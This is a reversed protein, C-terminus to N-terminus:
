AQAGVQKLLKALLDRVSARIHIFEDIGATKFQEVVAKDAPLGALVVIMGPKTAKVAKAFTPVLAPYTEDTSCLVAVSAGSAAAAQAAAEPTEFSQKAISEFGGVAFFGAAFDARAKHQLVPGMKALFVKPRSGTKAAFAGSSQRLEEIGAAARKCSLPQISDTAAATGLTLRSLQGVTAGKDAAAILSAMDSAAPPASSPRRAKLAAARAAKATADVPKKAFMKEKLNPFLNTGVLASRRKAVADDKDTAAAAVLKQPEGTRLVAVFGGKKEIDQFLGWAKRALEDSLKEIYWSGGSPDATRAVGFEEALLTHINRAIRRSFDDTAGTVEDFPGVHLSDVGGLVASLAETTVRLMNVHPDTLTKNYLSTRAQLASRAASSESGFASLVRAWLLRFARFKAIEMFFQSGISFQFSFQAAAKGPAIGRSQFARLYEVATGLAFALEQTATGGAEHWLRASVGVSRIGPAETATFRSWEALGDYLSEIKVPLAGTRVWEGIPDATLSGHLASAKVGRQRAYDLYLAGLARADSGARLHVPVALLDVNSLAVAFDKTDALSLGCFCGGNQAAEDPDQGSRTAADATLVVSNQGCMLGSLLASNFESVNGATIEQAVGWLGEKNDRDRFGRLFPAEGPRSDLHPIPALDIRSYLPQLAIGEPTRTVLKKEFPVGKLEAEVTKRWQSLLGELAETSSQTPSTNNAM